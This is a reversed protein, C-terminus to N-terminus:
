IDEGTNPPPTTNAMQRVLDEFTFRQSSSRSEYTPMVLARPNFTSITVDQLRFTGVIDTPPPLNVNITAGSRTNIDRSRHAFTELVSKHAALLARGRALAETLSIRGDQLLSERVGTGGVLAALADQAAADDVLVVLNVQDGKTIPYVIGTTGLLAPAVTIPTGWPLSQTLAGDGSAPIGTITSATVGGYRIVQNGAQAYGGTPVFPGVSTVPIETSGATVLKSQQVIGATDTTPANAGLSADPTNDYSAFATTVNDAITSHLKLQSAGAATRYV